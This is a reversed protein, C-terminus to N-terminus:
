CSIRYGLVKAPKHKQLTQNNKAHYQRRSPNSKNTLSLTSFSLTSVLISTLVRQAEITSLPTSTHYQYLYVIHYLQSDTFSPQDYIDRCQLPKAACFLLHRQPWTLKKVFKILVGVSPSQTLERLVDLVCGFLLEPSIEWQTLPPTGQSSREDTIQARKNSGDADRLAATSSRKRSVQVPPKSRLVPQL